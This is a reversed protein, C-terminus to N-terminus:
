LFVINLMLTGNPKYFCIEALSVTPGLSVKAEAM